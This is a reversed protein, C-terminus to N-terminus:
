FSKRRFIKMKQSLKPKAREQIWDRKAEAKPKEKVEASKEEKKEGIPKQEKKIPKTKEKVSTKTKKAKGKILSLELFIHSSKKQIQAARGRSQARWRKMKPGEDVFIKSIYLNKEDINDFNNKTNSLASKLLKLLPQCARKSGFSLISQAEEVKKGRIADAVLRVKRPAIKLYKLKATTLM